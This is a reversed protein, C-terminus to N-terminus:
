ARVRYAQVIRQLVDHATEYDLVPGRKRNGHVTVLTRAGKSLLHVQLLRRPSANGNDTAAGGEAFAPHEILYIGRSRDTRRVELGARDLAVGLHRWVSGYPRGISLVPAGRLNRVDLETDVRELSPLEAAAVGLYDALDQLIEVEIEQDGPMLQWEGDLLQARRNALYINTVADPEREMRVRFMDRTRIRLSADPTRERWAVSMSGHSKDEEAIVFGNSRWFDILHLWLADPAAGVALWTVNGEGRLSVDLREPLVRSAAGPGGRASVVDYDGKKKPVDLDPPVELERDDESGDGWGLSPLEMDDLFSDMDTGGCGQLCLMSLAVLLSAGFPSAGFSSTKFRMKM